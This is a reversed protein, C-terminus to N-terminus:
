LQELFTLSIQIGKGLFPHLFGATIILVYSIGWTSLILSISFFAGSVTLRVPLKRFHPEMVTIAKGMLRIPHPLIHPDGLIFDLIFAVPIIYWSTLYEM